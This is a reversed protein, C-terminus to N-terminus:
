PKFSITKRTTVPSAIPQYRWRKVAALAERDFMRPPNGRVVRANTVSGDTGVTFEIEVEGSQHDRYAEPPYKPSPAAILRLDNSSATTASPRSAEAQRAAEARQKEAAVRADEQRQKEAAVRAEEQQRAAADDSAKKQAAALDAAAKKQLDEQQKKRDEELKAQREKEADADLKQQAQRQQFSAEADSLSQKLRPLAAASKNAKEILAYLRHAENFDDSAITREAAIVTYPLLDTLASQVAADSPQKDRLALYYELANNGAPAYLRQEAQAAQAASRLQDVSMAAVQASVAQAPAQATQAPTGTAPTAPDAASKDGGGCAAVALAIAAALAANRFGGRLPAFQSDRIAPTM